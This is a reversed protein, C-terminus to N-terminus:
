INHFRFRVFLLHSHLGKKILHTVVYMEEIVGMVEPVESSNGSRLVPPSIYGLSYWSLLMKEQLLQWVLM